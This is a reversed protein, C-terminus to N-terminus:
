SSKKVAKGLFSYSNLSNLHSVLVRLFKIVHGNTWSYLTDIEDSKM